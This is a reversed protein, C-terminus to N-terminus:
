GGLILSGIAYCFILIGSVSLLIMMVLGIIKIFKPLKEIENALYSLELIICVVLFVIVMGILVEIM